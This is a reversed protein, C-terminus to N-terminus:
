TVSGWKLGNAIKWIATFSVGFLKAISRQTTGNALRNRAERVQDITLKAGPNSTGVNQSKGIKSASLKTRTALSRPKGTLFKTMM